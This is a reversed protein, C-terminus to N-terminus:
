RRLGTALPAPTVEVVESAQTSDAFVLWLAAIILLLPSVRFLNRLVYISEAHQLLRRQRM